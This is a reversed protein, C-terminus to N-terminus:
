VPSGAPLSWTARPDKPSRGEWVVEGVDRLANLARLTTPRALGLAETLEGTGMPRGHSRLTELIRPAGAPLRRAVDPAIRPSGVLTLRVSGSTQRYAPDVLGSIRMEDFIRRIGEGREQTIGLDNCVRAIRPNRAYRAIDLPRTPDVIGPFRGPSEIEIRDPFLSVRIHDGAMSYSRHVVANVLGELWADRPVIPVPGFTGDGLLARRRPMWEEIRAAAQRVVVPIPGEIRLDGDDATMQRAGTGATASLHRLVRVHAHPMATRPDRGLLLFAAVTVDGRTSLLSRAALMRPGGDVTGLAARLEDLREDSLDDLTAGPMPRAEFQSGGRDYALEERQPGTLRMTSDGVRLYCDGSTTEHLTEGPEVRALLVTRIGDAVDVDIEHVHVRPPPACHTHPVRRLANIHKDHATLDEIDGDSVGIAVSGGEANALGVITRALVEPAVRISKREFWQDEASQTLAEAREAPSMRLLVAVDLHM